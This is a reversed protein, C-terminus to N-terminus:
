KDEEAHNHRPKKAPPAVTDGARETDREGHDQQDPPAGSSSAAGSEALHQDIRAMHQIYEEATKKKRKSAAAIIGQSTELAHGIVTHSKHQAECNTHYEAQPLGCWYCPPLTVGVLLPNSRSM